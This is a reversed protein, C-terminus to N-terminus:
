KWIMAKFDGSGTNHQSVLIKPYGESNGIITVYNRDAHIWHCIGTDDHLIGEEDLGRGNHSLMSTVKPVTLTPLFGQYVIRQLRSTSPIVSVFALLIM